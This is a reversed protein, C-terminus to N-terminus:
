VKKFFSIIRSWGKPAPYSLQEGFRQNFCDVLAHSHKEYFEPDFGARDFTRIVESLSVGQNIWATCVDQRLRTGLAHIGILAIDNTRFVLRIAIEKSPHQWYLSDLDDQPRSPVYGYVQYEIDLFKASNFWAGPDYSCKEGLINAAACEGMMRGTYWVAEIAKRGLQPRLLEVCDGVAYIDPINTQLYEDVLIGRSVKIPSDKVLEINPSVGATLGVYQCSLEEGTESIVVSSVIGQQDGKIEQLNTSLRLDIHHAKIHRSIMAAEEEPLVNDWYQAERVLMTVTKGRSLLMEALEIGILGGGVIVARNISSSAAELRRLDNISYLGGVNKLDQGPWGFLNYKSGLALVLKDFKEIGGSRLVVRKDIVDISVVHDFILNIRNQTWFDDSYPKIDTYRMHGMYLYMLATRSYFHMTESSIVSIQHDSNKRIHRATTIGSIGNGIILIRM